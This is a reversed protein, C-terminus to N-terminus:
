SILYAHFAEAVGPQRLYLELDEQYLDDGCNFVVLPLLSKPRPLTEADFESMTFIYNTINPEFRRLGVTHRVPCLAATIVKSFRRSYRSSEVHVLRKRGQPANFLRQM